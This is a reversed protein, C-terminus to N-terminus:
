AVQSIVPNLYYNLTSDWDSRSVTKPLFYSNRISKADEMLHHETSASHFIIPSDSFCRITEAADVGTKPSALEIDMVVLDPHLFLALSVASEYTTASGLVEFGLSQFLNRLSLALLCEDEVILITSNMANLM